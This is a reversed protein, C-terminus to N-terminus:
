GEAARFSPCDGSGGPGVRHAVIKALAESPEHSLLGGDVRGGCSLCEELDDIESL